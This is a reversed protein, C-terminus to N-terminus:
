KTLKLDYQGPSPKAVVEIKLKTKAADSYDPNFDSAPTQGEPTPMTARSVTVKYKGLPAGAKGGTYIKYTGDSDIQGASMGARPTKSRVKPPTIGVDPILTVQGATLPKGAVTVKGTVPTVPAVPKGCGAVLWLNILMGLGALRLCLFRKM